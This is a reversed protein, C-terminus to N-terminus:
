TYIQLELLGLEVLDVGGPDLIVLDLELAVGLDVHLKLM